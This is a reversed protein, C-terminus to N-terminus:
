WLFEADICPGHLLAVRRLEEHGDMPLEFFTRGKLCETDEGKEDLRRVRKSGDWHMMDNSREKMRAGAGSPERYTAQRGREVNTNQGDLCLALCLPQSKIISESMSTM